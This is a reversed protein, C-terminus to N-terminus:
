FRVGVGAMVQHRDLNLELDDVEGYRSYRYEAKVYARDNLKVEAGAGARWGDITEEDDLTVGTGTAYRTEIGANTYGGKAYVLARDGLPMGVRAGLYLDRGAKIEASDGAVLVNTDRQRTSAWTAEGEVGVVVGGAQVDYGLNVGYAIGEKAEAGDPDVRDWGATVEARPGTFPARTDQALAPAAFAVSAVFAGAALFATRM